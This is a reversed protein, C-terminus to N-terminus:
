NIRQLIPIHIHSLHVYVGGFPGFLATAEEKTVIRWDRPTPPQTSDGSASAISGLPPLLSPKDAVLYFTGNLMFLNEFVTYGLLKWNLWPLRLTLIM